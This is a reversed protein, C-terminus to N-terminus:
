AEPAIFDDGPDAAPFYRRWADPVACKGEGRRICVFAQRATMALRNAREPKKANGIIRIASGMVFSTQGISRPWMTVRLTDGLVTEARYDLNLHRVVPLIDQGVWTLGTAQGMQWRAHELWQLYVANNVHGFSDIEYGRVAIEVCFPFPNDM